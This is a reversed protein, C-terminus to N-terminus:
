SFTRLRGHSDCMLLIYRSIETLDGFGADVHRFWRIRVVFVVMMVMFMTKFDRLDETDDKYREGGCCHPKV